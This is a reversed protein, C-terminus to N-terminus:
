APRGHRLLDVLDRVRTRLRDIEQQQRHALDLAESLMVERVTLRDAVIALETAVVDIAQAALDDTAVRLAGIAAALVERVRTREPPLAASRGIADRIADLDAATVLDAVAPDDPRRMAGGADEAGRDV